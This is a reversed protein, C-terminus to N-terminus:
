GLLSSKEVLYQEAEEAITASSIYSTAPGVCVLWGQATKRLASVDSWLIQSTQHLSESQIGQEDITLTVDTNATKGLMQRVLWWAQRYRVSLLEVIGLVTIFWAVYPEINSYMVLYYGIALLILGKFYRQMVPVDVASEEYCENFHAKDLRYSSTFSVPAPM